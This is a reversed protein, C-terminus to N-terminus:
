KEKAINWLIEFNDKYSKSLEEGEIEIAIPSEKNWLMLIIKNHYIATVTLSTAKIPIYRVKAYALSPGENVRKTSDPVDNYIVRLRLKQKVRQAHFHKMYYPLLKYSVGSSGYVAMEKPNDRLVYSLVTKMGEKGQYVAVRVDKRQTNQLKMLDPVLEKLAQEERRKKDEFNDLIKQPDVAQFYKKGSSVVYTIFGKELLIDLYDYISSRLINTRKSVHNALSEGEKLLDIYVRAEKEKLGIKSLTTIDMGRYNARNILLHQPFNWLMIKNIDITDGRM